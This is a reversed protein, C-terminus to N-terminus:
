AYSIAMESHGPIGSAAPAVGSMVLGIEQVDMEERDFCGAVRGEFLVVIRDSLLLLEDLDESILLIGCGRAAMNALTAHVYNVTAVDLGATPTVAVLVDPKRALERALLIKQVNGGSLTGVIADPDDPTISFERILDAARERLRDQKLWPGSSNGNERYSRLALNDSISLAGAVGVGIRDGPVYGLTAVGGNEGHVRCLSVRGSFQALGAIAAALEDQGNGSVGAVGVIEGARVNLSVKSLGCPSLQPKVTLDEVQLVVTGDHPPRERGAADVGDELHGGVMLDALDGRTASGTELSAVVRGERLVTVRDTFAVVHEIKHTVLIIAHGMERFAKLQRFLNEAERPALISTPEDLILVRAGELLLRFVEVRQKEGMSLEWVSAEPRIDLGLKGAERRLFESWRRPRCFWGHDGDSLALNEAVTLAPVLSFHQHVMGIGARRAERPSRFSVRRGGLSVEGHDPRYFGGLIKMLTTKGAGNEGLVAHIEGSRFECSIGDNAVVGGPFRKSIGLLSVAPAQTLSSM